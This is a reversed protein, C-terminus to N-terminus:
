PLAGPEAAQQMLEAIKRLDWRPARTGAPSPIPKPLLGAKVRRRLTWRTIGLMRCVDAASGYQAPLEVKPRNAM